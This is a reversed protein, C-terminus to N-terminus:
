RRAPAASVDGAVAPEAGEDSEGADRVAAAQPLTVGFVAALAQDLTPEMAVRGDYAVIVRKLQPVDSTEAILYVPEVYLISHNM